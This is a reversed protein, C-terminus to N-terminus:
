AAEGPAFTKARNRGFFIVTFQGTAAPRDRGITGKAPFGRQSASFLVLVANKAVEHSLLIDNSQNRLAIGTTIQQDNM